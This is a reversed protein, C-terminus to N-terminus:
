ATNAYAFYETLWETLDGVHEAEDVIIGQQYLLLGQLARFPLRLRDLIAMHHQHQSNWFADDLVRYPILTVCMKNGTMHDQMYAQGFVRAHDSVSKGPWNKGSAAQAFYFVTPPPVIEPTWAIVDIGGDKEKPSVYPGPPIRVVFGAGAAVARQLLETIGEGSRRPWGVSLAPGSSLGALGLTSVIQFVRNRLRTLLNDTPPRALIASGTVHTTILCILYFAYQSGSWNDLRSLEEATDNLQFPYANGLSRHRLTVENEIAEVLQERRKDREGINNEASEELELLSGLLSDVRSVGFEHFLATLELWDVLDDVGLDLTPSDIARLM